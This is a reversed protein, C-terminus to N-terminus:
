TPGISLPDSPRRRELYFLFFTRTVYLAAIAAAVVGVSLALAFSRAAGAGLQFLVLGAILAVAHSDLAAPLAQAFGEDVAVRAARGAAAGDRIREFVLVCGDVALVLALFIGIGGALTLGSGLTALGGLVLAGFVALSGVAILGAVRYYGVLLLLLLLLGMGASFALRGASARGLSPGIAREEVVSFPAPLAGTRLVLALDRAEDLSAGGLDIVDRNGIRGQALPTSVVDGDLLIAFTEGSRERIADEFDRSAGSTLEFAVQAQELDPDRQARASAVAPADLFPQGELVYLRRYTRAGQAVLGASWHLSLERPVAARVEPLALLREAAAVDDTSALFTGPQDGPVLLSGLSPTQPPPAPEAFPAASVPAQAAPQGAGGASDPAASVGTGAATPEAGAIVPATAAMAGAAARDMVPLAAQLAAADGFLRFELHGTRSVVDRARAPDVVGALEVLLRDDGLTQVMPEQVGLGRARELAVLRARDVLGARDEPTSPPPATEGLSLVLHTGGALDLGYHLGRAYLQWASFAVLILITVIRTRLSQM